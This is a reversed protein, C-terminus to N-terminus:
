WKLIVPLLLSLLVVQPHLLLALGPDLENGLDAKGTKYM